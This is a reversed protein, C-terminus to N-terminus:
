IDRPFKKLSLFFYFHSPPLNARGGAGERTRKVMMEMFVMKIKDLSAGLYKVYPHVNLYQKDSLQTIRSGVKLIQTLYIDVLSRNKTCGFSPNFIHDWFGIKWIMM